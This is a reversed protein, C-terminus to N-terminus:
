AVSSTVLIRRSHWRAGPTAEGATVVLCVTVVMERARTAKTKTKPQTVSASTMGGTLHLEDGGIEGLEQMPDSVVPPM